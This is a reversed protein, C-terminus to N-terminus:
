KGAATRTYIVANHTARGVAIIEARGDGDLDAAVLDEVAVQGPNLLTRQWLGSTQRDYIRVGCRHPDINDRVGIVLEDEADADFNVCAVAHGWSLQDDIVTRPWLRSSGGVVMADSVDAPQEYAVVQNGHWPEITAIYRQTDTLKGIRLESAGRAPATGSHGEGLRVLTRTKGLRELTQATAGAQQTWLHVGEFSALLLDERGDRDFDVVELNHMVPLTEEITAHQWAESSLDGFISWRAVRVNTNDWGPAQSGRGKLPATILERKGDGDLDAWAMRHMTPEDRTMVRHTWGQTPDAPCELWGVAGGSTTNNPQWDYGIAFDLDGDGDIDHPAFCVNDNKAEPTAHMVHLDWTPNELWLIRKSDVIAIDLKGDRNVDVARVAYGVQLEVPLEVARWDQALAPSVFLALGIGHVASRSIGRFISPRCRAAITM